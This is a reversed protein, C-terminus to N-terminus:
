TAKLQNILDNIDVGKAAALSRAISELSNGNRLMQAIASSNPNNQLMQVLAQQKDKAMQIQQMLQKAQAISNNLSM